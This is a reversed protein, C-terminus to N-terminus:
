GKREMWGQGVKGAFIGTFIIVLVATSDVSAYGFAQGILVACGTLLALSGWVRFSSLTGEKDSHIEKLWHLKSKPQTDTDDSM